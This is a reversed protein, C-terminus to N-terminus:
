FLSLQGRTPRRFTTPADGAMPGEDTFGLKRAVAEFLTSIADAYEGEGTQRKGFRPDYLKGGRTERIRHLVRDAALPLRARLREEFVDKVSGPLRLVVFGARSAGAERAAGLVAALDGDNLGPIIPAAMVGVPIGARALAEITRVRRRPTAVFPEIARAKDEDWFHLSVFVRVSAVRGLEQLLDIDREVLPAKTIISVPNRYEACVELVVQIVNFV